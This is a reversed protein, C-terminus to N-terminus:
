KESLGNRGPAGRPSLDCSEGTGASQDLEWGAVEPWAAMRQIEHGCRSSSLMERLPWLLTGGVAVDAAM